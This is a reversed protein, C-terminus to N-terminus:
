MYKRLVKNAQDVIYDFEIDSLHTSCPLTVIHQWISNTINMSSRPSSEYPKQLHMPKWFPRADINKERLKSRIQKINDANFDPLFIGSFWCSSEAWEPSPFAHVKKNDVLESNYKNSINRKSSLFLDCNEMQACGVAAQLNTMRYNYGVMDHDYDSGVRATTTLHRVFNALKPDNAALAGGGGATLTKNGNFSYMVLDAGVQGTTMGKYLTGIGAAADIITKLKYKTALEIIPDMDAPIGITFVPLIARVVRGTPKHILKDDDFYTKEVLEQELLDPDITWSSASLDILWPSAGCHSIANATAVFTLSPCIVLDNPKVGLAVLGAHLATTGSSTAVAFKAGERKAIMNEFQGVFPGVTSVFTSRVCEQLYDAERGALNPVALPILYDPKWSNNSSSNM